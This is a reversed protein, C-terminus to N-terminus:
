GILASPLEHIKNGCFRSQLFVSHRQFANLSFYEDNLFLLIDATMNIKKQVLLRTVIERFNDLTQFIGRFSCDNCGFALLWCGGCTCTLMMTAFSSHQAERYMKRSFERFKWHSFQWLFNFFLIQLTRFVFLGVSIFGHVSPLPCCGARNFIPGMEQHLLLQRRIQM